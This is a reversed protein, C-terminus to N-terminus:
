AHLYTLPANKSAPEVGAAEVMQFVFKTRILPLNASQSKERKKTQHLIPTFFEGTICWDSLRSNQNEQILYMKWLRMVM